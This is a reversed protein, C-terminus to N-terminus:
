FLTTTPTRWPLRTVCRAAKNQLVQLTALLYGSCGGYVQIIYTVTSLILGTAVLKRTKFNAIKSIKFLANIKSTLSRFMSGEDDRIHKNWLFNNSIKAGLLREDSIPQIIEAGTDLVIGFNNHKKHKQSSAMVLLHTKDSNLVLKNQNMYTAISKYKEAIIRTLETPDKGSITFTSDDAYCCMSGCQKCDSNFFSDNKALHKHVSEPLDNTFIIYLLPGLISGQPVGVTVDLPDSMAGDIYVQQTRESLYSSIWLYADAEFGYAELKKILLEHDVLDFAASMDLMLVASLEENDFAEVWTDIM